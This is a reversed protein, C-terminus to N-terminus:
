AVLQLREKLFLPLAGIFQDILMQAQEETLVPTKRLIDIM